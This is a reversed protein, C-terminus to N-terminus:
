KQVGGQEALLGGARCTEAEAQGTPPGPVKWAGTMSGGGRGGVCTHLSLDMESRDPPCPLCTIGKCKTYSESCILLHLARM